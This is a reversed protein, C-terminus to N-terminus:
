CVGEDSFLCCCSCEPCCFCLLRLRMSMHIRASGSMQTVLLHTSVFGRVESHQLCIGEAYVATTYCAAGAAPYGLVQFVMVSYGGAISSGQSGAYVLLTMCAKYLRHLRERNDALQSLMGWM